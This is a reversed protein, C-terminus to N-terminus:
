PERPLSERLLERLREPSHAVALFGHMSEISAQLGEVVGTLKGVAAILERIEAIRQREAALQAKELERLHESHREYQREAWKFFPRLATLAAGLAAILVVVYWPTNEPFDV